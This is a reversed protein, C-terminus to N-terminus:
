NNKQRNNESHIQSINYNIISYLNPPKKIVKQSCNFVYIFCIPHEELSSTFNNLGSVQVIRFGCDVCAQIVEKPYIYMDFASTIGSTLYEMIAIKAFLYAEEGKLKAENPFVQENLWEQLPLDDAMSRLFTMASHTHANKFGPMLLNRKVDIERDWLIVDGPEKCVTSVDEGDGIYCITNGRVWLEGETIQMEETLIRANYFRINM